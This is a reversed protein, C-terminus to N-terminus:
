DTMSGQVHQTLLIVLPLGEIDATAPIEIVDDLSVMTRDLASIRWHQGHLGKACGYNRERAHSSAHPTRITAIGCSAVM